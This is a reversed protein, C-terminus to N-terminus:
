FDHGITLYFKAPLREKDEVGWAIDFKTYYGLLMTRAGVGYGVLFPNKFNSVEATFSGDVVTETNLANEKNFPSLGTWSSGVDTFAILQLNRFFNSTITKRYFYKLIPFRLEANFLMYNEGNWKNLNFGRLSTVFQSFLLDSMDQSSNNRVVLPDNEGNRDIQNFVWNDMGGLFYNKKAKGVFQGYSFRTALILSRHLRQYHRADIMINGFNKDSDSLGFHQEFRIKARSGEMMNVGTVVSNDYVFEANFGAYDVVIDNTTLSGLTTNTFRTTAYFPEVSVRTTINFPYSASAKVVNMSYEHNIVETVLELNHREYKARFDIRHKLYEYEVFFNSNNLNTLGFLGANIKHNELLDTMDVKFFLGWGRLPDILLSTIFKDATFQNEYPISKGIQIPKEEARLVDEGIKSKFRELFSNRKNDASETNSFEYNDTDVEDKPLTPKASEVTETKVTEELKNETKISGRQQKLIQLIRLDTLQQRPTKGKFTSKDFDYNKFKYLKETGGNKASIYLNGESVDYAKLGQSFSSIQTTISDEVNFKFLNFIGRRDSSFLIEKENLPMPQIDANLTKTLPTLSAKNGLTYTFLNFSELEIAKTTIQNTLSDGRNSSFIIQSDNFLFKPNIDDYTDNTIQNLRNTERNLHFIDNQGKKSASLIMQTGDKSIDFGTIHTFNNFARKTKKKSEVDIEYFILNGEKPAIVGLKKSSVWDILPVNYNVKQSIIKYGGKLVVEEKGDSKNEKVIVRFRGNDNETYAIYKDGPSVSLTNLVYDKKNENLLAEKPFPKYEQMVLKSQKAYYERWEKLFQGYSIGLTNQISTQENRVIRTYNLIHGINVKGYREAIYNWISQGVWKADDETLNEPKRLTKNHVMSRMYDDMSNDWGYAIYDAAGAMFWDPLNLLYNSQLIEKLNGGYMMEFILVDAISRTLEQRFAFQNGLFAVEVESRVFNTQGGIDFGQYKVGINSQLLDSMSNYLFVKVKSYPSFSVMDTIRNFDKEAFEAAIVATEYGGDYYYFDFNPTNIFRWDFNKYQVRNKGFRDKRFQSTAPTCFCLLCILLSLLGTLKASINIKSTNQLAKM